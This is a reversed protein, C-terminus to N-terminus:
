RMRRFTAQLVELDSASKTKERAKAILGAELKNKTPRNSEYFVGFVGPWPESALRFAAV